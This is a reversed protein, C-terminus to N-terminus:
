PHPIGQVPSPHSERGQGKVEIHQPESVGKKDLMYKVTGIMIPAVFLPIGVFLATQIMGKRWERRTEEQCNRFYERTEESRDIDYYKSGPLSPKRRALRKERAAEFNIVNSNQQQIEAQGPIEKHAM